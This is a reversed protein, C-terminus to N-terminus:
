HDARILDLITSGHLTTTFNHIHLVPYCDPTTVWNLACCDGSPRLDGPTKKSVMNLPSAWPRQLHSYLIGQQLMQKFEKRAIKLREPTAQMYTRHSPAWYNHNPSNCWTESTLQSLLHVVHFETLPQIALISPSSSVTTSAIGQVRLRTVGDSMQSHLVNELLWSIQEWSRARFLLSTCM